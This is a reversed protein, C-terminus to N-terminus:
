GVSRWWPELRSRDARYSYWGGRGYGMQALWPWVASPPADITLSRTEILDPDAVLEDGPLARDQEAPVIGWTRYRARWQQGYAIGMGVMVAFALIKIRITWKVVFKLLWFM